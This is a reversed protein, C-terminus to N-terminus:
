SGARLGPRAPLAGGAPLRAHRGRVAHPGGYPTLVGAFAAVGYGMETDLRASPPSMTRRRCEPPVPAPPGRRRERGRWGGVAAGLRKGHGWVLADPAVVVGPGLGAGAATRRGREMGGGRGPARAAGPGGLGREPGPGPARLRARGRAGGGAGTEGDGGDFRMGLEVSPTFSAGGALAFAGRAKPRGGCGTPGSRLGRSASATTRSPSGGDDMGRGQPGRDGPRLGGAGRGLAGRVSGGAAASRLTTDSTQRGAEGDLLTVDGRGYGLAAWAHTGTPWAWGVYPHASTM